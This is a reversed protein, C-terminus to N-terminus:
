EKNENNEDNEANETDEDNEVIEIDEDNEVIEIDDDDDDDDDKHWEQYMLMHDSLSEVTDLVCEICKITNELEKKCKNM